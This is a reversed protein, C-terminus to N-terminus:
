ATLVGKLVQLVADTVEEAPMMGDITFVPINKCNAYALLDKHKEELQILYNLPIGSEAERNRDNMRQLCVKAPTDIFVIVDPDWYLEKYIKDFLEMEIPQIHENEYQLQTFVKRCTPPSREYLANFTQYKWTHFSTLVNLNFSMGWRAPNQYFIKLWDTWQDVPELFIPINIKNAINQMLTSKGTGINGEICIKM